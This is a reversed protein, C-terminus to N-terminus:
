TKKEFLYSWIVTARSDGNDEGWKSEKAGSTPGDELVSPRVKARQRTGEAQDGVMVKGSESWPLLRCMRPSASGKRSAARGRLGWGGAKQAGLMGALQALCGRSPRGVSCSLGKERGEDWLRLFLVFPETQASGPGGILSGAAPQPASGM